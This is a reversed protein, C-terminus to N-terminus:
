VLYKRSPIANQSVMLDVESENLQFMFDKPFRNSNRKVQERLRAPNVEYLAAIDKDLIVKFGRIDYIAKKIYATQLSSGSPNMLSERNIIDKFYIKGSAALPKQSDVLEMLVYCAYSTLAYSKVLRHASSGITVMEHVKVFHNEKCKGENNCVIKAKEILPLFNRYESYNLVRSLDRASWFENNQDDLRKAEEFIACKDNMSIQM